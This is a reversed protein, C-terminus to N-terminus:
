QPRMKASAARAKAACLSEQRALQWHLPGISVFRFGIGSPSPIIEPMNAKAIGGAL